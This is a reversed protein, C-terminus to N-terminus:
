IQINFKMLHIKIWNQPTIKIKKIEKIKKIKKSTSGVNSNNKGAM